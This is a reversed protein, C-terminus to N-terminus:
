NAEALKRLGREGEASAVVGAVVKKCSKEPQVLLGKVNVREGNKRLYVSKVTNPSGAVDVLKKLQATKIGVKVRESESFNMAIFRRILHSANRLLYFVETCAVDTYVVSINDRFELMLREQESQRGVHFNGYSARIFDGLDDAVEVLTDDLSGCRNEIGHEDHLQDLMINAVKTAEDRGMDRMEKVKRNLFEAFKTKVARVYVDKTVDRFVQRDELKQGDGQYELKSFRNAFQAEVGAEGVFSEIDEASAFVKLYLPVTVNLQNKAAGTISRNLQKLESKPSKWEDVFLVWARMATRLDLGLPAGEFAKEIVKATTKIVLGMEELVGEVLFGKGWDSIAHLWIFAQRRDSAFRAAIMMNLFWDLEPFHEQYDRWVKEVTVRDVGWDTQFDEHTFIIKLDGDRGMSTSCEEAFMDVERHTREVQRHNVLYEMLHDKAIRAAEEPGGHELLSVATQLEKPTLVWTALYHVALTSLSTKPAYEFADMDVLQRCTKLYYQHLYKETYTAVKGQENLLMFKGKSADFYINQMLRHLEKMHLGDVGTKALVHGSTRLLADRELEDVANSQVYGYANEKLYYTAGGHAYGFIIPQRGDNWFFWTSAKYDPELPDLCPQKDFEAGDRTLLQGVTRSMGNKFHILMDQELQHREYLGEAQHRAAKHSIGKSVLEEVKEEIKQKRFSEAQPSVASFAASKYIGLDVKEEADLPKIDKARLVKSGSVTFKGDSKGEHSFSAKVFDPQHPRAMVMDIPAREQIKGGKDVFVWGYGALWLRDFLIQMVFPIQSADDIAIDTHVGKRGTLQNGEDDYIFSSSSDRCVMYVDELAPDLSRLLAIIEEHTEFRHCQEPYMAVVEDADKYDTDCSMIGGGQRFKLYDNTLAVADARASAGFKLPYGNYQELANGCVRMDNCSANKLWDVYGDFDDFKKVELTGKDTRGVLEKSVVKGDQIDYVKGVPHEFHAVTITIM